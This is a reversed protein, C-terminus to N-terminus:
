PRDKPVPRQAELLAQLDLALRTIDPPVEERALAALLEGAARRLADDVDTRDTEM